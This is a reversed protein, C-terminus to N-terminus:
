WTQSTVGPEASAGDAGADTNCKRHAPGWNSPVWTLLPFNKRSKIHQVTCGDPETSPISYDIKQGCIVCPSRRARGRRKVENLAQVARRGGWTPVSSGNDVHM